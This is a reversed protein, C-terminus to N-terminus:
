RRLPNFARVIFEISDQRNVCGRSTPVIFDDSFMATFIERRRTLWVQLSSQARWTRVRLVPGARSTTNNYRARRFEDCPFDARVVINDSAVRSITMSNGSADHRIERHAIKIRKASRYSRRCADDTEAADFVIRVRHQRDPVRQALPVASKQQQAGQAAPKIMLMGVDACARMDGHM